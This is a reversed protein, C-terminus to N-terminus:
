GEIYNMITQKSVDNFKKWDHEWIILVEYGLNILCRVRNEDSERKEAATMGISWNMEDAGFLSEHCHWYSGYFEIIKNGVLIDPKVFGFETTIPVHSRVEYGNKEIYQKIEVEGSSEQWVKSEACKLSCYKRKEYKPSTFLSGCCMCTITDRRFDNHCKRSCFSANARYPHVIFEKNCCLCTKKIRQKQQIPQLEGPHSANYAGYCKSSCFKQKNSCRKERLDFIEGCNLCPKQAKKSLPNKDSKQWNSKCRIDCFFLKTKSQHFRRDDILKEKNCWACSVTTM